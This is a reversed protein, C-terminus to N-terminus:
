IREGGEVFTVPVWKEGTREKAEEEVKALNNGSAVIKKNKIAVWKDRYKKLFETHHKEGWKLDDWFEKSAKEM